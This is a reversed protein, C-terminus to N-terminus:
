PKPATTPAPEPRSGRRALMIGALVLLGGLGQWPSLAEDLIAWALLAALTPQLLLSVSGFAPPLHAMAFAIMSQGGAHSFWALGLLVLWGYLTTAILDGGNILAVPLLCLTTWATSWAMIVPTSFKARLRAVSLLYAAYFLATIIGLGDGILHKTSLTFSEGMLIVAGGLASCLGLLFRLSPKQGYLAWALATVFVPAFNALLTANAVSTYDLSWHWFGLDGAFFVGPLALLLYDRRTVPQTSKRDPNKGNKAPAPDALHMWLWLLPLSLLAREFATVTPNLESLRVFIPAFAIAAAGLLLIPFAFRDAGTPAPSDSM